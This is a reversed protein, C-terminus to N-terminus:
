DIGAVTEAFIKSTSIGEIFLITVFRGIFARRRDLAGFGISTWTPDRTRRRRVM